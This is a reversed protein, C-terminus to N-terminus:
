ETTPRLISFPFPNHNSQKIVFNRTRTTPSSAADDEGEGDYTGGLAPRCSHSSPKSNGLAVKRYHLKGRQCWHGCIADGTPPRCAYVGLLGM